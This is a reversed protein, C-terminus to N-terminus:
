ADLFLASHKVFLQPYQFCAAHSSNPYLILQANPINQQLTFSNITPVMVDTHGNIVLTPQKFDQLYAFREGRPQRWGMLATLQAMYTEKPTEPDDKRQTRRAWFARGAAKGAESQSFFLYQFDEYTLEPHTAIELIKPDNAPEGNRPATGILILRRVLESHRVVTEQAVFGGISIGLLDIESLGLARVFAGVHDAMAEISDPPPGSSAGIGANDFIIVERGAALGDTVLPDWHDLGGRFHMCFVLPPSGKSTGFQRYAYKVGNAEVFRTPATAHTDHSSM